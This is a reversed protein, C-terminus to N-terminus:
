QTDLWVHAHVCMNDKTNIGKIYLIILLWLKRVLLLVNKYHYQVSTSLTNVFRRLITYM